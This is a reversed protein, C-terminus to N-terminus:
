YFYPITHKFSEAKTYPVPKQVKSVEYNNNMLYMLDCFEAYTDYTWSMSSTYKECDLVEPHQICFRDFLARLEEGKASYRSFYERCIRLLDCTDAESMWGLSWLLDSQVAMTFKEHPEDLLLYPNKEVFKLLEWYFCEQSVSGSVSFAPIDDVCKYRGLLSAGVGSRVDSSTSNAQEVSSPQVTIPTSLSTTVVPQVLQVPKQVRSASVVKPKFAKFYDKKSSTPTVVSALSVSTPACDRTNLTSEKPQVLAEVPVPSTVVEEEISVTMSVTSASAPVASLTACVSSPLSGSVAVPSSVPACTGTPLSGSAGSVGSVAVTTSVPVAPPGRAPRHRHRRVSGRRCGCVSPLGRSCRKCREECFHLHHSGGCNFCKGKFSGPGIDSYRSGAAKAVESQQGRNVGSSCGAARAYSVERSKLTSGAYSDGAGRRTSSVPQELTRSAAKSDVQNSKLVDPNYVSNSFVNLSNTLDQLHSIDLTIFAGKEVLQNIILAEESSLLSSPSLAFLKGSLLSHSM